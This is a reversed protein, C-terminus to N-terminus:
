ISVIKALNSYDIFNESNLFNFFLSLFISWGMARQPPHTFDGNTHAVGNLVYSLNDSNVPISFDALYLKFGLSILSILILYSIIIKTKMFKM